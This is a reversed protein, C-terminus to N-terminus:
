RPRSLASAPPTRPSGGSSGCCSACGAAWAILFAVMKSVSEAHVVFRHPSSARYQDHEDGERQCQEGGVEAFGAGAAQVADLATRHLDESRDLLARVAD